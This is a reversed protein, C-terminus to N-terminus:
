TSVRNSRGIYRRTMGPMPPRRRMGKKAANSYMKNFDMNYLTESKPMKAMASGFGKSMPSLKKKPKIKKKFSPVGPKIKKRAQAAAKMGAKTYPFKKGDVNPM